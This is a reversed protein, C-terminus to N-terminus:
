TGASPLRRRSYEDKLVQLRRHKKVSPLCTGLKLSRIMRKLLNLDRKRHVQLGYIKGFKYVRANIGLEKLTERMAELLKKERNYIVVRDTVTGDADLLGGIFEKKAEESLKKFFKLPEKRIRQFLLFLEKSYVLARTKNGYGYFHVKLGQNELLVKAKRVIDENRRVQDIWVAFAKNKRKQLTGDGFLLGALYPHIEM